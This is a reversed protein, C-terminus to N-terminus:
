EGCAPCDGASQDCGSFDGDGLAIGRCLANMNFLSEMLSQKSNFLISEQLKTHDLWSVSHNIDKANYTISDQNTGVRFVEICSVIVNVPENKDMFWVSDKLNFKTEINM